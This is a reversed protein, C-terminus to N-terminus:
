RQEVINPVIDITQHSLIRLGKPYLNNARTGLNNAWGIPTNKYSILVHGRPADIHIAEGRLYALATPFDVACQPPALRDLATSLAFSHHPVCAKGRITALIVGSHIVRLVSNLIAVVDAHIIPVALVDDTVQWLSFDQPHSLWSAMDDALRKACAPKEVRRPMFTQQRVDDPKRLVAMFLGEGRTCHPMFRYAPFTTDIGPKVGWCSDVDISVPQAGYECIIHQVIDENEQRNYTCTSYIFLGGPRLAPWIHRIIDRQRQACQTVLAPSWQHAAEDDKRM